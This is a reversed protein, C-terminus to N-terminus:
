KKDNVAKIQKEGHNEGYNGTELKELFLILLNLKNQLEVTIQLINM